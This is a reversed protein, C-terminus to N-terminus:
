RSRPWGGDYVYGTMVTMGAVPTSAVACIQGDGDYLYQNTGDNLVDGSADYCIM